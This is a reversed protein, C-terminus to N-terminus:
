CRWTTRGTPTRSRSRRPSPRWTARTAPATPCTSTSTPRRGRSRTTAPATSALRRRHRSRARLVGRQRRGPARRSRPDARRHALGDARLAAIAIAVDNFTCYGRGLPPQRPAHRRGSRGRRRRHARRARGRHDVRLRAAGARRAGAVVAARAGGARAPRAPRVARPAGVGPPAGPRDRGVDGAPGRARQRRPEPRGPRRVLAYKGLPFRHGEPVPFTFRDHAYARLMARIM